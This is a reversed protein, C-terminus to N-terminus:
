VKQHIQLICIIYEVAFLANAWYEKAGFSEVKQFAILNHTKLENKMREFDFTTYAKAIALFISRAGRDNTAALLNNSLHYVCYGHFTNQFVTEVGYILGKQRDSIFTLQNM